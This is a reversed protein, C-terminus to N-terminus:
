VDERTQFTEQNKQDNRSISIRHTETIEGM